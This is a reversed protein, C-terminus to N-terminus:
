IYSIYLTYTISLMNVGHYWTLKFNTPNSRVNCEFYVDDGEKIDKLESSSGIRLLVIPAVTVCPM